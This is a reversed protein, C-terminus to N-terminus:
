GTVPDSETQWRPSSTRTAEGSPGLFSGRDRRADATYRFQAFLPPHSTVTHLSFASFFRIEVTFLFLELELASDTLAGVIQELTDGHSWPLLLRLGTVMWFQPSVILGKEEWVTLACLTNVWPTCLSCAPETLYVLDRVSGNYCFFWVQFVVNLVISLFIFPRLPLLLRRPQLPSVDLWAAAVRCVKTIYVHFM